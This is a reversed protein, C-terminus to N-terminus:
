AASHPQFRGSFNHGNLVSGTVIRHPQLAVLGEREDPVVRWRRPSSDPDQRDVAAAHSSEDSEFNQSRELVEGTAPNVFVEVQNAADAGSCDDRREEAKVLLRDRLNFFRVAGESEFDEGLVNQFTRDNEFV